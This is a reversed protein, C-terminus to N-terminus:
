HSHFNVNIVDLGGELHTIQHFENFKMKMFAFSSEVNVSKNKKENASIKTKINKSQNTAINNLSFGDPRLIKMTQDIQNMQIRAKPSPETYKLNFNVYVEGNENFIPGYSISAIIDAFCIIMARFLFYIYKNGILPTYNNAKTALIANSSFHDFILRYLGELNGSNIYYVIKCPILGIPLTKPSLFQPNGYLANWCSKPIDINYM